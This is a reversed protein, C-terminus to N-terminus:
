PARNCPYSEMRAIMKALEPGAKGQLAAWSRRAAGPLCRPSCYQNIVGGLEVVEELGIGDPFAEVKACKTQAAGPEQQKAQKDNAPQECIVAAAAAAPNASPQEENAAAGPQPLNPPTALYIMDSSRARCYDCVYHDPNSWARIIPRDLATELTKHYEAWREPPVHAADIWYSELRALTTGVTLFYEVFNRRDVSSIGGHLPLLNASKLIFNTGFTCDPDAYHSLASLTRASGDCKRTYIGFLMGMDHLFASREVNHPLAFPLDYDLQVVNYIGKSVLTLLARSTEVEGAADAATQFDLSTQMNSVFAWHSLKGVYDYADLLREQGRKVALEAGTVTKTAVTLKRESEPQVAGAGLITLIRSMEFDGRWVLGLWVVCSCRSYAIPM